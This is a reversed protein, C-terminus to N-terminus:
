REAFMRDQPNGRSMLYALLDLVEDKNLTDLLDQPMLSTQSPVLEDVDARDVEVIKGADEPDTMVTLKGNSESVIRGTIVKGGVTQVISARYQDSVVKSPEVLAESLDRISFRGAVNTLDPGTAGGDGDFRHCVVCRAAAYMKRGREFDRGELGASALQALEDVTWNRGPGEPKPLEEPKPPKFAIESELAQREAPSMNEVAETRINDIFGQYSAGGSKERLEALIAFYRQREELTWGYRMNRLVFALHVKELDPHDALMKAIPEGYGRNRSLLEVIDASLPPSEREMLKLTESIVTPANLYVLVQSLERNLADSPAPYHADLREVIGAATAPDTQGMRTFTLQYVRLLGLQMEESLDAFDIRGLAELVQPELSADGQRALGCLAHIATVPDQEALARDRWREVPQQEIALRAAYRIFRDDHGLNPWIRAIAAEDASGPEHYQELKRRLVRLEEHREDHGNVPDTPESGVYTVRYLESQTGRGGVAFYLAGDQGVVADTLPLPTRSLFEEKVGTYTAGDPELHVAYITGFTWDLLYLARQYKEPFNTGYGFEVGVPSGPGIDAVPPLSDLYWTPWKGTGSRWGFESGSTAHVLRTPRYWPSGMDWEMDSDYAFLDGEANFAIDYSNRYGISIIEWTEGDPDTKAIWGGPALRGRAHGRADWQRPLLLDESWNRPIRSGDLDAPPDTHNGCVVYISKGDPSLRLAHPGHEGGGKFETLKRLEDYQDDGDTDRARYLGSGPGGNVSLYLSGFAHLMGQAATIELDLKEVRTLADTGRAPPTIRYLGQKDQDSALIRGKDDLALCVWSGQTEKPVTYLLEVEFGSPVFFVERPADPLLARGGQGFVDGWPQMGMKGLTHAAAWQDSERSRAAEWSKDTVISRTQGDRSTLVLKIAVGAAGDSNGAEVLLTNTGAKIQRRVDARAPSEWNANELVKRGNLTVTIQNDGTGVLVASKLPGQTEFEKRFVYRDNDGANAAGWIWEAQVADPAEAIEPLRETEESAAAARNRSEVVTPKQTSVGDDSADVPAAPAVLLVFLPVCVSVLSWAACKM